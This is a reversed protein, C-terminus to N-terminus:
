GLIDSDDNGLDYGKNKGGTNTARKKMSFKFSQAVNGLRFDLLKESIGNLGLIEKLGSHRYQPNNRLERTRYVLTRKIAKRISDESFGLYALFEDTVYGNYIDHGLLKVIEELEMINLYGRKDYEKKLTKSKEIPMRYTIGNINLKTKNSYYIFGDADWQKFDGWRLYEDTRFDTFINAKDVLNLKRLVESESMYAYAYQKLSEIIRKPNKKEMATLKKGEKLLTKLQKEKRDRMSYGGKSIPPKSMVKISEKEKIEEAKIEKRLPFVAKVLKKRLRSKERKDTTTTM